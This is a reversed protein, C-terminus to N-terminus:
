RGYVPEDAEDQMKDLTGYAEAASLGVQTRTGARAPSGTLNDYIMYNGGGDKRVEYRPGETIEERERRLAAADAFIQAEKANSKAIAADNLHETRVRAREAAASLRDPNVDCGCAVGCALLVVCARWIPGPPSPMTMAFKEVDGVIAM